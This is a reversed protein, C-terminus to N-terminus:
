DPCKSFRNIESTIGERTKVFSRWFTWIVLLPATIFLIVYAYSVVSSLGDLFQFSKYLTWGYFPLVIFSCIILAHKTYKHLPSCYPYKTDGYLEGWLFASHSFMYEETGKSILRNIHKELIALVCRKSAQAILTFLIVGGLLTIFLPVVLLIGDAQSRIAYGTLLVLGAALAVVAQTGTRAVSFFEQHVTSYQTLLADLNIEPNDRKKLM